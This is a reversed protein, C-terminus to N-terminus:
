QPRSLFFIYTHLTPGHIYHLFQGYSLLLQYFLFSFLLFIFVPLCDTCIFRCFSPNVSFYLSIRFYIVIFLLCTFNSNFVIFTLIIYKIVSEAYLKIASYFALILFPEVEPHNFSHTFSMLPFCSMYDGPLAWLAQKGFLYPGSGKCNCVAPNCAPLHM